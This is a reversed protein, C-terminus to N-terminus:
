LATFVARQGFHPLTTSTVRWFCMLGCRSLRMPFVIGALFYLAVNREAEARFILM